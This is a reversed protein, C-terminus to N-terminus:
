RFISELEMRQRLESIIVQSAIQSGQMHVGSMTHMENGINDMKNISIVAFVTLLVFFIGYGGLIRAGITLSYKKDGNDSNFKAQNFILFGFTGLLVPFIAYIWM